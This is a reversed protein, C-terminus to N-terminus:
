LENDFVCDTYYLILLNERLHLNGIASNAAFKTSVRRPKPKTNRAIRIYCSFVSFGPLSASAIIERVYQCGLCVSVCLSACSCVYVCASLCVSM